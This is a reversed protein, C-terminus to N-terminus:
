VPNELSTIEFLECIEWESMAITRIDTPMTINGHEDMQIINREKNM